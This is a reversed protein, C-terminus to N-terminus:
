CWMLESSHAYSALDTFQDGGRCCLSSEGGLASGQEALNSQALCLPMRLCIGHSETARISSGPMIQLCM